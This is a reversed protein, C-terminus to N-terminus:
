DRTRAWYPEADKRTPLSLIEKTSHNSKGLSDWTQVQALLRGNGSDRVMRTISSPDWELKTKDPLTDLGYLIRGSDPLSHGARSASPSLRRSPGSRPGLSQRRTTPATSRRALNPNRLAPGHPQHTLTPQSPREVPMGPAAPVDLPAAWDRTRLRAAGPYPNAPRTRTRAALDTRQTQLKRTFDGLTTGTCHRLHHAAAAKWVAAHPQHMWMM